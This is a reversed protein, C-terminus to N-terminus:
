AEVLDISQKDGPQLIIGGTSSDFLFALKYALYLWLDTELPPSPPPPILVKASWAQGGYNITLENLEPGNVFLPANLQNITLNTRELSAQQPAYYPASTGKTPPAIKASTGQKNLQSLTATEHYLNFIYVNGYAM